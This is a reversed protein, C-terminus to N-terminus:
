KSSSTINRSVQIDIAAERRKFSSDTKVNSNPDSGDLNLGAVLSFAHPCIRRTLRIIRSWGHNKGYGYAPVHTDYILEIDNKNSKKSEGMLNVLFNFIDEGGSNLPALLGVRDISIGNPDLTREDFCKIGLCSRVTSDFSSTSAQLTASKTVPISATVESKIDLITQDGILDPPWQQGLYQSIAFGFIILAAASVCLRMVSLRDRHKM